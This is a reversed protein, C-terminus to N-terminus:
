RSRLANQFRAQDDHPLVTTAALLSTTAHLLERVRRQDPPSLSQATKAIDALRLVIGDILEEPTEPMMVDDRDAERLAVARTTPEPEPDPPLFGSGSGAILKDGVVMGLHRM